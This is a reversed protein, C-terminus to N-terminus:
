NKINSGIGSQNQKPFKGGHVPTRPEKGSKRTNSETNRSKHQSEQDVQVQAKHLTVFISRNENKQM